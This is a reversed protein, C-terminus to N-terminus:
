PMTQASSQMIEWVKPHTQPHFCGLTYPVMAGVIPLGAATM